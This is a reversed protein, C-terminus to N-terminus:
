FARGGAPAPAARPSPPVIPRNNRAAQQIDARLGKLEAVMEATAAGQGLTPDGGAATIKAIAENFVRAVDQWGAEGSSILSGPSSFTRNMLSGDGVSAPMRIGLRDLEQDIRTGIPGLLAQQDTGKWSRYLETPSFTGTLANRSPPAMYESLPAMERGSALQRNYESEMALNLDGFKAGVTAQAIEGGTRVANAKGLFTRRFNAHTADITGAPFQKSLTPLIDGRVQDMGGEFMLLAQRSQLNGFGRQLLFEDPNFNGGAAQVRSRQRRIDEGIRFLRDLPKTDQDIGLGQFYTSTNQADAKFADDITIGRAQMLGASAATLAQKTFTAAEAQNTQAYLATLGALEPGAIVGSKVFPLNRDVQEFLGSTTAFKGINALRENQLM